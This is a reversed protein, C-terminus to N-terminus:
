LAAPTSVAKDQKTYEVFGIRAFTPRTECALRLLCEWFHYLWLEFRSVGVKLINCKGMLLSPHWEALALHKSRFELNESEGM